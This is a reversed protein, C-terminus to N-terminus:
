PRGRLCWLVMLRVKHRGFGVRAVRRVSICATPNVVGASVAVYADGGARM